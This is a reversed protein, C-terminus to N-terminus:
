PRRQNENGRSWLRRIFSSIITLSVQDGCRGGHLMVGSGRATLPRKRPSAAATLARGPASRTAAHGQCGGCWRQACNSVRHPFRGLLDDRNSALCTLPFGSSGGTPCSRFKATECHTQFRDSWSFGDRSTGRRSQPNAGLQHSLTTVVDDLRDTVPIGVDNAPAPPDRRECSDTGAGCASGTWRRYPKLELLM